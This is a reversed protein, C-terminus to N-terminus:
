TARPALEPKRSFDHRAEIFRVTGSRSRMVVSHTTAGGGFFHVGRLFAGDTVGTAAFMVSGEALDETRYLRDLDRIGMRGARSREEDSRFRLIGQLEGGLCRLAAASLVGEPAGGVGFLVDVGSDDKCTAISAAVDGDTILRIRAGARRM